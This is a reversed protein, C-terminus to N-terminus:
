QTVKPSKTNASKNNVKKTKAVVKLVEFEIENMKVELSASEKARQLNQHRLRENETQLRIIEQQLWEKREELIQNQQTMEQVAKILPVTFTSYRLGYYDKENKPRDVGSFEYGSNQAAAEVEQAIFGTYRVDTKDYFQDLSSVPYGPYKEEWWNKFEAWDVEYTVPRLANIFSLGVVDEKIDKKFQADSFTTWPVPGGISSVAMNGIRVQDSATSGVLAGIATANDVIDELNNGALWGLATLGRAPASM